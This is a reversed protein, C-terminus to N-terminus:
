ECLAARITMPWRLLPMSDSVSSPETANVAVVWTAQGTATMRPASRREAM